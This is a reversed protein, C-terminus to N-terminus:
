KRICHHGWSTSRQEKQGPVAFEKPSVVFVRKIVDFLHEEAESFPSIGEVTVVEPLLSTFM